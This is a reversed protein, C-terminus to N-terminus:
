DGSPPKPVTPPRPINGPPRRVSVDEFLLSPVVLSALAGFQRAPNMFAFPDFSPSISRFRFTHNTLEESAAVIDRFSGESLGTLVAERILEERGDPFVKVAVVARLLRGGRSRGTPGDGFGRAGSARIRRVVIGYELEREDLLALFEESMEEETLGSSSTMVLNSPAPGGGRMHGNSQPIGAVPNRTSLLTKLMGRQVLLTERARVGEDDVAYGGWLPGQENERMTPNDAVALFRPLVRSGLKDQFPNALRDMTQRMRQDDAVPAKQVLLRPLLVQRVLEAAAQGEFLVPGAYREFVQAQRLDELRGALERSRESLDEIAPLDRWTRGFATFSDSIETGDGARTRASVTVTASPDDRLFSSGESNVYHVRISRARAGVSSIHIHAQEQFEASLETALARVRNADPATLGSGGEHQYPEEVSFDAAEEVVTENQLAARKKSIRDLADKYARDTALWIARRLEEYNEELPLSVPGFSIDEMSSFDPRASFNTNDLNRDGVRVEVHLSRSASEGSSAVGGLSATARIESVDQVSYSVFYPQELDGLRLESMSRDLEDQMARMVVGSQALAPLSGTALSLLVSYIRVRNM